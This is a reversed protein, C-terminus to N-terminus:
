VTTDGFLTGRFPVFAKPYANEAELYCRSICQGDAVPHLSETSAITGPDIPTRDFDKLDDGNNEAFRRGVEEAKTDDVDAVNVVDEDISHHLDLNDKCVDATMTVEPDNASCTTEDM